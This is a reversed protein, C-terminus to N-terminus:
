WVIIVSQLLLILIKSLSAFFMLPLLEVKRLVEECVDVLEEAHCGLFTVQCHLYQPLLVPVQSSPIGFAPIQWALPLTFM